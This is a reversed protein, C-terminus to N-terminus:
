TPATRTSGTWNDHAGEVSLCTSDIYGAPPTLRVTGGLIADASYDLRIRGVSGPGGNNCCERDPTIPGDEKYHYDDRGGLGGTATIAGEIHLTAAVLYVTGGSGGGGAGEENDGDNGGGGAGSGGQLSVIRADGYAAGGPPTLGTYQGFGHTGALAHGAGGAGPPVQSHYPGGASAGPGSGAHGPQSSGGGAGGAGGGAVGVGGAGNGAGTSWPTKGSFFGQWPGGGDGGDGGDVRIVGTPGITIDLASIKLAGGGAGGGAAKHNGASNGGKGGSLDITGRIDVSKAANIILPNSGTARLTAGAAVFLSSYSFGNPSADTDLTLESGSTVELAPPPAYVEVEALNLIRWSGPLKIMVYRALQPCESLLPGIADAAATEEACVTWPDTSRARYSVTYDGLRSRTEKTIRRNYVAVYAIQIATGLDLTLSPDARKAADSHCFNNLDGDVCKSAPFNASHTSSLTATASRKVFSPLVTQCVFKVLLTCPVDNWKGSSDFILCDENNEWNNPEGPYWNTYSMPTNTPSWVWTGESAADTGGIWVQNGDAATRVLANQAASQVTALQLGARKCANDAGVWTLAYNM